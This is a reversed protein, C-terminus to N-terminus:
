EGAGLINRLNEPIKLTSPCAKKFNWDYLLPEIITKLFASTVYTKPLTYINNEKSYHIFHHSHSIKADILGWHRVCKLKQSAHWTGHDQM